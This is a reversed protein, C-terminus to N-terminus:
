ESRDVLLLIERPLLHSSNGDFMYFETFESRHIKVGLRLKPRPLLLSQRRRLLLLPRLLLLLGGGLPECRYALSSLRAVRRRRGALWQSRSEFPLASASMSGRPIPLARPRPLSLAALKATILAMVLTNIAEM